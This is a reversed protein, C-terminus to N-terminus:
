QQSRATLADVLPIASKDFISNLLGALRIGAQTLRTKVIPMQQYVYTYRFEGNGIQYIQQALHFSELVWDKPQSELYEAIIEKNDTNIFEVFESYSLNENQILLTDWLGHLNNKKNFFEIDIKNGGHDEKRGVHMPQHIDGVLHVLFRLHFRKQDPSSTPSKLIAICKLIASYADTVKGSTATINYSAPNFENAHKINVYHWRSSEKKWFKSSNSRMEDAWTSVEALSDGELLPLLAQRSTDTLHLEALKGVIRHGNQGWAFGKNLISLLIISSFIVLFKNTLLKKLQM